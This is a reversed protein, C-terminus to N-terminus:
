ELVPVTEDPGDHPAMNAGLGRSGSAQMRLHAALQTRYAKEDMVHQAVGPSHQNAWTACRAWFAQTLAIALLLLLMPMECILSSPKQSYLLFLLKAPLTSITCGSDLSCRFVPTYSFSIPFYHFSRDVVSSSPFGTGQLWLIFSVFLAGECCM